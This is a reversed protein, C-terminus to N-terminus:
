KLGTIPQLMTLLHNVLQQLLLHKDIVDGGAPPQRDLGSKGIRAPKDTLHSGIHRYFAQLQFDQAAQFRPDARMDIQQNEVRMPFRQSAAPRLCRHRLTLGPQHSGIDPM